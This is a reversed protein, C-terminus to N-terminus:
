GGMIEEAKAQGDRLAEEPTQSQSMVSSSIVGLVDLLQSYEPVMNMTRSQAASQAFTAIAEKDEASIEPDAAVAAIASARPVPNIWAKGFAALMDTGTAWKVFEVAGEPNKAASAVAFGWSYVTSVRDPNGPPLGIRFRGAVQSQAPDKSLAYLYPWVPALALKGELWLGQMDSLELVGPPASQDEFVFGMMHALAARGAETDITPRNGADLIDSGCQQYLAHLRTASEINQKSAILTGWIGAERDTLRRAFDRYEAWTAPPGALGAKELLDTRWYMACNHVMIPLAYLGGEFSVTQLATGAFDQRDADSVADDLNRIFGKQAFEPLWVQDAIYVDFGGAASLADLVFQQRINDHPIAIFEVAVGTAETFRGVQERYFTDYPSGAEMGVTIQGQAAARRSMMPLAAVALGAAATGQLFGRRKVRIM